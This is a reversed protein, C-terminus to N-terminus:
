YTRDEDEDEDEFWFGLRFSLVLLAAYAMLVFGLAYEFLRKKM